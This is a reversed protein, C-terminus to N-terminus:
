LENGMQHSRFKLSQKECRVRIILVRSAEEEKAEMMMMCAADDPPRERERAHQLDATRENFGRTHQM